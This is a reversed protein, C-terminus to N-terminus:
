PCGGARALEVSSVNSSIRLEIRQAAADYDATQWAGATRSLGLEDFNDSSLTAQHDLRLGVDPPVCLTVSSANLTMSGALSAAPLSLTGSAANWTLGVSQLDTATGADLRADSANFTGNLAELSGGGLDIRANSANLTISTSLAAAQPLSVQWTRRGDDAFPVFVRGADSALRLSDSGPEIRPQRGEAHTAEVSWESGARREVTLGVCTLEMEVSVREGAFTGSQTALAGGASTGTDACGAGFGAFDGFGTVGSALVAGALMGATAAVIVGGLAAVPTFRLLLGIGIGILILPWLRLLQQAVATELLGAQVALPIAGLVIFFVGWNLLNRSV